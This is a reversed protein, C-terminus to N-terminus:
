QQGEKKKALHWHASKLQNGNIFGMGAWNEDEDTWGNDVWVIGFVTDDIPYDGLQGALEYGNPPTPLEEKM